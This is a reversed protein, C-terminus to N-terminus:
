NSEGDEKIQQQKETEIGGVVEVLLLAFEATESESRSFMVAYSLADKILKLKSKKFEM